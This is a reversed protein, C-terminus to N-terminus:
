MAYPTNIKHNTKHTDLWILGKTYKAQLSEIDLQEAGCSFLIFIKNVLSIIEDASGGERNNM